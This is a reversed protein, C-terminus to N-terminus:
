PFVDYTKPFYFKNLHKRYRGNLKSSSLDITVFTHSGEEVGDKLEDLSM